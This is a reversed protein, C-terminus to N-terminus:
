LLSEQTLNLHPHFRSGEKTPPLPWGKLQEVEGPDERLKGSEQALHTNLEALFPRRNAIWPGLCPSCIFKRELASECQSNWSTKATGWKVDM